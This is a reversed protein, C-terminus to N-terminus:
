SRKCRNQRHSEISSRARRAEWTWDEVRYGPKPTSASVGPLLGPVGDPHWLEYYYVRIRVHAVRGSGAVEPTVTRGRAQRASGIFAIRAQSLVKEMRCGPRSNGMEPQTDPPLAVSHAVPPRM